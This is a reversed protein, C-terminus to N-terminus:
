HREEEVEVPSINAERLQRELRRIQRRCKERDALCDLYERDLEALRNRTQAIEVRLAVRDQDAQLFEKRHVELERQLLDVGMQPVKIRWLIAVGALLLAILGQLGGIAEFLEDM